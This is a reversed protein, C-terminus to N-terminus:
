MLSAKVAAYAIAGEIKLRDMKEIEAREARSNPWNRKPVCM